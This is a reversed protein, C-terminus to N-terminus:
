LSEQNSKYKKKKEFFFVCGNQIKVKKPFIEKSIHNHKRQDAQSTEVDVVIKKQSARQFFPDVTFVVLEFRPDPVIPVRQLWCRSDSLM